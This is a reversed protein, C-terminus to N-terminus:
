EEYVAQAQKWTETYAMELEARALASRQAAALASLPALSGAGGGSAGVAEMVQSSAAGGPVVAAPPPALFPGAGSAVPPPAAGLASAPAAAEYFLRPHVQLPGSRTLRPDPAFAAGARPQVLELPAQPFPVDWAYNPPPAAAAVAAAAASDAQQRSEWGDYAPLSPVSGLPAAVQLPAAAQIGGPVHDHPM